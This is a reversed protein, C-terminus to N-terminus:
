CKALNKYIGQSTILIYDQQEYASLANSTTGVNFWFDVIAKPEATELLDILVEKEDKSSFIYHSLLVEYVTKRRRFLEKVIFEDGDYLAQIIIVIQYAEKLSMITDTEWDSIGCVFFADDEIGREAMRGRVQEETFKMLDLKCLEYSSGNEHVRITAIM